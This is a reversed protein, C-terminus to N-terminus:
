QCGTSAWFFWNHRGIKVCTKWGQHHSVQLTIWCSNWIFSHSMKLSPNFCVRVGGVYKWPHLGLGVIQAGPLCLILREGLFCDRKRTREKRQWNTWLEMVDQRRRRVQRRLKIWREWGDLELYRVCAGAYRRRWKHHQQWESLSIFSKWFCLLINNSLGCPKLTLISNLCNIIGGGGYPLYM